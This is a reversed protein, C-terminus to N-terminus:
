GRKPKLLTGRCNAAGCLCEHRKKEAPTHREALTLCYDYKLEEGKRIDRISEIFIRGDEILSECNPDCSHNLFRSPNGRVNADVITRNDVTFLFTHHPKDPDDPYRRDAERGSIREGVYEAIREGAYIRRTAFAGKGHIRSSRIEFPRPRVVPVVPEKRPPASKRRASTKKPSKKKASKKGNKTM